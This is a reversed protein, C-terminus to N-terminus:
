WPSLWCLYLVNSHVRLYGLPCKNLFCFLVRGIIASYMCIGWLCVLLMRWSVCYAPCYFWNVFIWFYQFLLFLNSIMFFFKPFYGLIHFTFFISSFLMHRPPFLFYESYFLFWLVAYWCKHVKAVATSLSFHIAKLEM